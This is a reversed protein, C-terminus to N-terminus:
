GRNDVSNPSIRPLIYLQMDEPPQGVSMPCGYVAELNDATMVSKSTGHAHVRGGNILVVHDAFYATLNLDHLVAVVGGGGLAFEKGINMIQIQHKIDLSSIPEDLFLYRPQGEVQPAGIQALVRAFQVRQQEGGSLEQYYRGGF